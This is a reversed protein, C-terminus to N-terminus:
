GSPMAMSLVPSRPGSGAPQSRPKNITLVSLGSGAKKQGKKTNQKKMNLWNHYKVPENTRLTGVPSTVM